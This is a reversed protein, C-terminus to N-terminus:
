RPVIGRLWTSDFITATLTSARFWMSVQNVPIVQNFSGSSFPVRFAFFLPLNVLFTGLIVNGRIFSLNTNTLGSLLRLCITSIPHWVLGLFYGRIKKFLTFRTYMRFAISLYWPVNSIHTINFTVRFHGSRRFVMITFGVLPWGKISIRAMRTVRVYRRLLPATLTVNTFVVRLYRPDCRVLHFSFTSAQFHNVERSFTTRFSNLWFFHNLFTMRQELIRLFGFVHKYLVQLIFMNPLRGGGEMMTMSRQGSVRNMGHNVVGLPRNIPVVSGM